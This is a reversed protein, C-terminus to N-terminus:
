RSTQLCGLLLALDAAGSASLNTYRPDSAFGRGMANNYLDMAHEAASNPNSVEHANAFETASMIGISQTMAFNWRSHRWADGRGNSLESRPFNQRAEALSTKGSRYASITKWGPQTFAVQGETMTRMNGPAVSPCPNECLGLPDIRSIPNGGVYAYTNMGGALGIPDSQLYRGISPDYDRFVNSWNGTEADYYQGPFGLNM